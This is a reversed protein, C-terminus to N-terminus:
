HLLDGRKGYGEKAFYIMIQDLNGCPAGVYETEVAQLRPFFLQILSRAKRCSNSM